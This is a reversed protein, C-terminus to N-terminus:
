TATAAVRQPAKQELVAGEAIEDERGEDRSPLGELTDLTDAELDDPRARRLLRHPHEVEGAGVPEGEAPVVRRRGVPRHRRKHPEGAADLQLVRRSALHQAREPDATLELTALFDVQEDDTAAGAAEGGGDVTGRLPEVRQDDLAGRQATLRSRRAPDLVIEAEGGPDATGLERAGCDALSALEAGPGRSGEVRDRELRAVSAVEHTQLFPV